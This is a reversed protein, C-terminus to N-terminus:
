SHPFCLFLRLWRSDMRALGASLDAPVIRALFCLSVSFFMLWGFPSVTRIIKFPNKTEPEEGAVPQRLSPIMCRLFSKDGRNAHWAALQDRISSSRREPLIFESEDEHHLKHEQAQPPLNSTSM